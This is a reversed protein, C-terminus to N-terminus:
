FYPRLKRAASVLALALKELQSYRTEADLLSKSVYYVPLQKGDEERVLVSSVATDSVALYISLQEGDKPKSLLPPSTLYRKLQQLAEECAPTWEFDKSDKAHTPSPIDLVSRIQEPNAEIGRQTVLYGLFKGSSVGFSCKTPNLKMNYKRLIEFAQRLHDLNQKHDELSLHIFVEDLSEMAPRNLDAHGAPATQLQYLTAPKARLTNRYCERSISQEGKIEKIGWKTPFRVVQDTYDDAPPQSSCTELNVSVRVHRRAASYSIGSIESGGTIVNIVREPSPETPEPEVHNDRKAVIQHPPARRGGLLNSGM